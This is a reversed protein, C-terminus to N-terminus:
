TSTTQCSYCNGTCYQCTNSGDPYQGINANCTANCNQRDITLYIDLANGSCTILQYVLYSASLQFNHNTNGTYSWKTEVNNGNVGVSTM